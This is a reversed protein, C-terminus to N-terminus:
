FEQYFYTGLLIVEVAECSQQMDCGHEYCDEETYVGNPLWKVKAAIGAQELREVENLAELSPCSRDKTKITEAYDLVYGSGLEASGREAVYIKNCRYGQAVGKQLRESGHQEIWVLREAAVKEAAIKTAAKREDDEIRKQENIKKQNAERWERLPAERVKRAAEVAAKRKEAQRAEDRATLLDVIKQMIADCCGGDRLTGDAIGEAIDTYLYHYNVWHGEIDRYEGIKNANGIDICDDSVRFDGQQLHSFVDAYKRSMEFTYHGILEEGRAVIQAKQSESLAAITQLKM